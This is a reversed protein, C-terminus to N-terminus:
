APAPAPAGSWGARSARLQQLAAADVADIDAAEVALERRQGGLLEDLADQHAAQRHPVQDDAVIEAEALAAGAIEGHQLLGPLLVAEADLGHVGDFDVALADGTGGHALRQGGAVELM